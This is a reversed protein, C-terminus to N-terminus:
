AEPERYINPRWIQMLIDPNEIPKFGYQAYLGHADSTALVMRRLGQLDPHSVITEVLWKSLGKGRQSEIIFVDALYAFTAKDTILRAFGVQQGISDYIGFCFSNLIAKELTAKPIGAAWYSRSIFDHIVEFNLRNIDTSIEFGQM